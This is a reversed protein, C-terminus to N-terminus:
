ALGSSGDRRLFGFRVDQLTRAIGDALNVVPREDLDTWYRSRLRLDRNQLSAERSSGTVIPPRNGAVHRFESLLESVAVSRGSALIKIHSTGEVTRARDAAAVALEACDDVFIYDRLTDFSVFISIPDRTLSSLCLRSILGQPKALNQGPGYLNSIRGIISPVSTAASFSRLAREIALKSEGYPGLPVTLSSEHFPAGTKGGYVAGASSALFISGRGKRQDLSSGLATLFSALVDLEAALATSSSGPVGAGACWFIQWDDKEVQAMFDALNSSLDFLARDTGWSIPSAEFTHRELGRLRRTVASGLLGGAGIVWSSDVM